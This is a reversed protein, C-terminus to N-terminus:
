VGLEENGIIKGIGSAAEGTKQAREDDLSYIGSGAHTDIVTFPKEKKCLHELILSLTLHKLIDAHNGAHYAHIYSLM